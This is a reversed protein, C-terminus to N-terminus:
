GRISYVREGDPRRESELKLASIINGPRTGRNDGYNDELVSLM